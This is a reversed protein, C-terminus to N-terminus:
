TTRLQDGRGNNIGDTWAQECKRSISDSVMGFNIM